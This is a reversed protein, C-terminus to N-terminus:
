PLDHKTTDQPEKYIPYSGLIKVLECHEGLNRLLDKVKINDCHGVFDIYFFYEWVRKKSPRSEIRTLNLDHSKFYLLTDYLAGVKDKVFVVISTKDNGTEEPYDNSLVAFRTVNNALDQIDHHIIDLDYLQACLKPAMAASDDEEVALQAARSTSSVEIMDIHPIHALIWHRCQAFVQPNSYVRKIKKIDGSNNMLNHSIPMLIESCIKVDSDLFMELTHNVGGETSNELPVVTYDCEGTEVAKFLDQITRLPMFPLSSGFKHITAQHTNSGEPGFYGITIQKEIALSASMIERYIAELSKNKMPGKNISFIKEYVKNEREPVYIKANHKNKLEGIKLVLDTRRNISDVIQHDITDIEKRLSNLKQQDATDM